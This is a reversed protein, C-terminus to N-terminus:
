VAMKELLLRHGPLALAIETHIAASFVMYPSGYVLKKCKGTWKKKFANFQFLIGHYNRFSACQSIPVMDFTFYPLVHFFIPHLESCITAICCSTFTSNV